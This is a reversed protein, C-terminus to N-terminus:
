PQKAAGEQTPLRFRLYFRALWVATGLLFGGLLLWLAWTPVANGDGGSVCLSIRTIGMMLVQTMAGMWALQNSAWAKTEERREPALWWTKHPLNILSDPARRLLSQLSGFVLVLMVHLATMLIAFESRSSWGDVNGASDFHSAIRDPMSGYAAAIQGIGGATALLLV